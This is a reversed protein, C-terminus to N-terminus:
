VGRQLGAVGTVQLGFENQGFAISRTARDQTPHQRMVILDRYFAQLPNTLYVAGAGMTEFMTRGATVCDDAAQALDWGFRIQHDATVEDGAEVISMMTRYARLMRQEANSILSQADAARMQVWTLHARSDYEIVTRPRYVTAQRKWEEYMGKAAGVAPATGAGTYILARPVRFLKGTNVKNGPWLTQAELRNITRHAPVYVDEVVVSQSGTGALGSVFWDDVLKVDSVPLVYTRGRRQADGELEPDNAGLVVWKAHLVGSSSRWRGSLRYGGPEKVATGQPAYSSSVLTKPDDGYLEDQLQPEMLAFEFPHVGVIACIWGTSPCASSIEAVVEYFEDAPRELGGYNKSQLMQFVGLEQLEDITEQPVRREKETQERRSAIRDHLARARELYISTDTSSTTTM